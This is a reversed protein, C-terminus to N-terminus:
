TDVCQTDTTCALLCSEVALALPMGSPNDNQPHAKKPCYKKQHGKQGYTFCKGKSKGESVKLKKKSQAGHKPVKKKKKDKKVSSCREM